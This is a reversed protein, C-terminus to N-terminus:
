LRRQTRLMRPMPAMIAATRPHRPISKKGIL